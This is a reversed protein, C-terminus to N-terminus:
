FVSQYIFHLDLSYKAKTVACLRYRDFKFTFFGTVTYFGM